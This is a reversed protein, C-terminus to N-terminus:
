SITVLIIYLEYKQNIKVTTSSHIISVSAVFKLMKLILVDRQIALVKQAILSVQSMGWVILMVLGYQNAQMVLNFPCYHLDKLISQEM